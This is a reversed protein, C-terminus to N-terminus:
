VTILTGGFVGVYVCPTISVSIKIGEYDPDSEPTTDVQFSFLAYRKFGYTRVDVTVDGGWGVASM